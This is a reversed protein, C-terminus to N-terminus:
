QPQSDRTSNTGTERLEEEQDRRLAEMRAQAMLSAHEPYQNVYSALIEEQESLPQPSPFQDLKPINEGPATSPRHITARRILTHGRSHIATSDQAVIVPTSKRSEQTSPQSRNAVTPKSPKASRWALTLGVVVVAAMAGAIAWRWWGFTAVRTTQEAQLNAMIREELGARPEVAAYKSAYRALAEDFDRGPGDNGQLWDSDKRNPKEDAM